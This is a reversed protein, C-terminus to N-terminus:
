RRYRAASEPKGLGRLPRRVAGARVSIQHPGVRSPSLKEAFSLVADPKLVTIGPALGEVESATESRHSELLAGVEERLEPDSGAIGGLYAAREKPAKELAGEFLRRV